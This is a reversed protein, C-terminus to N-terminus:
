GAAQAALVLAERQDLRQVGAEDVHDDGIVIRLVDLGLPQREGLRRRARDADLRHERRAQTEDDGPRM